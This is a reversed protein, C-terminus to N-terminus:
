FEVRLTTNLLVLNWGNLTVFVFTIGLHCLVNLPGKIHSKYSNLLKYRKLLFNSVNPENEPYIPAKIFM